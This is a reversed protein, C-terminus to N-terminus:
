RLAEFVGAAGMGGGVCMTVVGYRGGRRRLEYLLTALLRTGTAGLPHGLAIAGGNVNCREMPLGLERVCYLAQSAFAENLEFLDIQDTRLGARRLAEPVARVPGIGMLAPPVGAVAFSLLRALPRLGRRAAEDEHMLLAAAAGDSTQSSNGATVSGGPRFVPPLKALSAASTDARPGEDAAFQSTREEIRGGTGPTRRVVPVPVIEDRFRGAAAAALARQHSQLAFADQDARNVGFQEAVREATQGMAIYAEPLHQALHPSPRFVHGTMPVLSMSEIGGALVVRAGGAAIRDGAQAISQLGSACFRNVTMAPVSDPLGAALACLRGVDLGQEAEPFACGLVVDEVAAAEVGPARALAERLVLAGLDDPRVAALAGKRARGVPTRCVSVIVASTM